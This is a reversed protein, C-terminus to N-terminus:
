TEFFTRIELALQDESIKEFPHMTNPFVILSANKLKRYVQITEELTVMNDKDGIGIQVKAAVLELLNELINNNGLSIMLEQTKSLVERWKDEGHKLQLSKAFQPVKQLIIGSDLMKIEKEAIEPTWHFKTAFTFVKDIIEPYKAALYLGVYGGMSYGFIAVKNLKEKKLFSYVYEAFSEISFFEQMRENGHGPFNLSICNYSGSLKSIVSDFQTKSGIAGHLFLITSM